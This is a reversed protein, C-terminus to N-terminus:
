YNESAWNFFRQLGDKLEVKAEFGLAAKIKNIDPCRRQPEDSPYEEPYPILTYGKKHSTVECVLKALDVMSIEPNPNGLNYVDSNNSNLMVSLAGQIADTVYCFTRTQLGNGYIKIVEQNRIALAMNPLARFDNPLMGPGYVNFPRLVNVTMGYTKEFLYCITEGLRKSEDYCARDSRPSVNGKYDEGTPIETEIPDGYIESSSFFLFKSNDTRAKELLQQTISVSIDITEFPFKRYHRPSAIGALHVIYDFKNPLMAGLSANGYIWEIHKSPKTWSEVVDRNSTIYNDLAVLFIPNSHDANNLYNIVEVFYRGLFGGAGTLLVQKGRLKEVSNGIDRVISEIDEGVVLKM